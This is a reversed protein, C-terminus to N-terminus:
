RLIFWRSIGETPQVPASKSPGQEVRAPEKANGENTAKECGPGLWLGTTILVAMTFTSFIVHKKHGMIGEM